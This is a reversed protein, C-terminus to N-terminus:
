QPPVEPPASKIAWNPDSTDRGTRYTTANFSSDWSKCEKTFDLTGVPRCFDAVKIIRGGSALKAMLLPFGQNLAPLGESGVPNLRMYSCGRGPQSDWQYGNPNSLMSPVNDPFKLSSFRLELESAGNTKSTACETIANSIQSQAAILKAKDTNGIVNPLQIAVLIGIIALVVVMELLSFGESLSLKKAQRDLLKHLLKHM